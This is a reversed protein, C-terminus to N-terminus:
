PATFTLADGQRTANVYQGNLTVDNWQPSYVTVTTGRTVAGSMRVWPASYVVDLTVPADAAILQRAGQRDFLATGHALFLATVAGSPDKHVSGVAGRLTYEDRTVSKQEGYNILHDQTGNLLVRIGAADPDAIGLTRIDPKANWDHITTPYLVHVFQVTEVLNEPMVRIYPKGAFSRFRGPQPESDASEGAANTPDDVGITVRFPSPNLVYVGLLLPSASTSDDQDNRYALPEGRIWNGQRWVNKGVHAVWAYEHVEEAALDDIMILYSPKVFLVHRMIRKAVRAIVTTEVDSTKPDSSDVDSTEPAPAQTEVNAYRNTADAILYNFNDTVYVAKLTGDFDKAGSITDRPRMQGKGDILVANHVSTQSYMPHDDAHGTLEGTLQVNGQWLYFTNTDQHDHSTDFGIGDGDYDISLNTNWPYQKEIFTDHAFRGGHAGTKLGFVLDNAGWGTRWIVGSLDAFTRSTPLGDPPESFVMPDHFLFEFVYWPAHWPKPTRPQVADLQEILWQAQRNQYEGAIFSLIAHQHGLPYGWTMDGHSIVTRTSEPLWNYTMWATLAQYYRHPLADLGTIKRLNYFFPLSMGLMSTQSENGEHWTGDTIGQLLAQHINGHRVAQELWTQAHRTEGELALAALGFASSNVIHQQSTFTNRWWGTAPHAPNAIGASTEYLDNAHKILAQTITAHEEPTFRDYLWDYAISSGLLLHAVALDTDRVDADCVGDLGWSSWASYTLLVTKAADAYVSDGTIVYSFALPILVDGAYNAPKGTNECPMPKMNRIGSVQTLTLQAFKQIPQWIYAHTTVAQQRLMPIEKATFFLRPHPVPNLASLEQASIRNQPFVHLLILLILM